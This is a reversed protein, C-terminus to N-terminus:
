RGTCPAQQYIYQTQGQSILVSRDINRVRIDTEPTQVRYSVPYDNCSLPRTVAYSYDPTPTCTSCPSQVAVADRAPFCSCGSIIACFAFAAPTGIILKFNM